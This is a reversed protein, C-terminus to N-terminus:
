VSASAFASVLEVAAGTSKALHIAEIIHPYHISEGSYNLRILEPRDLQRILSQYLQFDMHEGVGRVLRRSCFICDFPCRSTLEIWLTRPSPATLPDSSPVSM